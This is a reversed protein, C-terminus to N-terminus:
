QGLRERALHGVPAHEDIRDRWPRDLRRQQVALGLFPARGLQGLQRHPSEPADVLDRRGGDHERRGGARVVGALRETGVASVHHQSRGPLPVPSLSLPWTFMRSTTSTAPCAPTLSMRKSYQSTLPTARVLAIWAPWSSCLSRSPTFRVRACIDMLRSSSTTSMAPMSGTPSIRSTASGSVKVTRGQAFELAM